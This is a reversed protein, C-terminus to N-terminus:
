EDDSPEFLLGMKGVELMCNGIYCMATDCADALTENGLIRQDARELKFAYRLAELHNHLKEIEAIPNDM